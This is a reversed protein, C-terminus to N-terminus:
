PYQPVIERPNPERSHDPTWTDLEKRSPSHLECTYLQEVTNNKDKSIAECTGHEQVTYM